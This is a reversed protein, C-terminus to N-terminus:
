PSNPNRAQSFLPTREHEDTVTKFVLSATLWCVGFAALGLWEGVLVHRHAFWDPWYGTPVAAIVIALVMLVGCSFYIKKRRAARASQGAEQKKDASEWFHWCFIALALFLVVAAPAHPWWIPRAHCECVCPFMAVCFACVCVVKGLIQEGRVKGNYGILLAGISTLAGVFINRTPDSQWYSDSISQLSGGALAFEFAPLALAIMGIVFKIVYQDIEQRPLERRDTILLDKM